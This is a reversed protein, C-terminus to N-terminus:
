GGYPELFVGGWWWWRKGLAGLAGVQLPGHRMVDHLVPATLQEPCAEGAAGDFLGQAECMLRGLSEVDGAAMAELAKATVGMNLVGLLAHLKRGVEGQPNPYHGQLKTLITTTCKEAKLDVLVLHLPAALRVPDVTLIDRDFEMSIPISGYACAQDMRGCKSPTTIEGLYAFEMEGRISLHLNYLRNFARAVLVCVAASSSLGKSLPLTTTHNIIELGGTITHHLVVRYAVGAVYSWFGGTRAVAGLVLLYSADNLRVCLLETLHCCFEIPSLLNACCALYVHVANTYTQRPWWSTCSCCAAGCIFM